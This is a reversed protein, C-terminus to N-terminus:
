VYIEERREDDFKKVEKMISEKMEAYQDETIGGDTPLQKLRHLQDICQGRLSVRKDPSDLVSKSSGLTREHQSHM